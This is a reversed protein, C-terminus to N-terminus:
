SRHRHHRYAGRQDAGRREVPGHVARVACGGTGPDPDARRHRSRDPVPALHTHDRETGPLPRDRVVVGPRRCLGRSVRDVVANRHRRRRGRDGSRDRAIQSMRDNDPVPRLYAVKDDLIVVQVEQRPSLAAATAPHRWREAGTAPDLGSSFCSPALPETSCPRGVWWHRRPRRRSDRQRGSRSSRTCRRSPRTPPPPQRIRHRIRHRIRAFRAIRRRIRHRIRPPIRRPARRWRIVLAMLVMLVMLVLVAGAPGPIGRGRRVVRDGTSRGRVVGVLKSPIAATPLPAASGDSRCPHVVGSRKASRSPRPSRSTRSRATSPARTPAGFSTMPRPRVPSVPRCTSSWAARPIRWSWTPTTWCPRSRAPPTRPWRVPTASTPRGGSM